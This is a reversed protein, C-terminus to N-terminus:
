SSARAPAPDPLSEVILPKHLGQMVAAKIM